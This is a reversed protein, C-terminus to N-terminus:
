RMKCPLLWELPSALYPQLHQLSDWCDACYQFPSLSGSIIPGTQSCNRNLSSGGVCWHRHERWSHWCSEPQSRSLGQTLIGQGAWSGLILSHLFPFSLSGSATGTQYMTAAYLAMNACGTAWLRIRPPQCTGSTRHHHQRCSGLFVIKPVLLVSCHEKHLQLLSGSPELRCSSARSLAWMIEM